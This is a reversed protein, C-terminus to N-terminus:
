PAMLTTQARGCFGHHSVLDASLVRYAAPWPHVLLLCWSPCVGIDLTREALIPLIDRTRRRSETPYGTAHWLYLLIASWSTSRSSQYIETLEIAILIARRSSHFWMITFAGTFRVLIGTRLASTTLCWRPLPAKRAPARTCNLLTLTWSTNYNTVPTTLTPLPYSSHLNSTPKFLKSYQVPLSFFVCHRKSSDHWKKPVRLECAV